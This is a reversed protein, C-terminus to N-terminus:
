RHHEGLLSEIRPLELLLTRRRTIGDAGLQYWGDGLDTTPLLDRGDAQELLVLTPDAGACVKGGRVQFSGHSRMITVM